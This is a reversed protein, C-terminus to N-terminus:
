AKGSEREMRMATGLAWGSLWMLMAHRDSGSRVFAMACELEADDGADPGTTFKPKDGLPSAM